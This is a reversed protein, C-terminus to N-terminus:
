IEPFLLFFYIPLGDLYVRRRMLIKNDGHRLCSSVLLDTIYEPDGDSVIPNFGLRKELQGSPHFLVVRKALRHHNQALYMVTDNYLTGHPDILCLGIDSNNLDQRIMYELLKSKGTGTTGIIHTHNSRGKRSLSLQTNEQTVGIRTEKSSHSVSLARTSGFISSLSSGAETSQLPTVGLINKKKREIRKVM